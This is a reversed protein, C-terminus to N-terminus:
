CKTNEYKDIRRELMKKNMMKKRKELLFIMQWGIDEKIEGYRCYFRGKVSLDKDLWPCRRIEKFDLPYYKNLLPSYADTIICGKFDVYFYIESIFPKDTELYEDYIEIYDQFLLCDNEEIYEIKAVKPWTKFYENGDFQLQMYERFEADKNGYLSINNGINLFSSVIVKVTEGRKNTIIIENSQVERTFKM